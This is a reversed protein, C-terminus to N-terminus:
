TREISKPDRDTTRDYDHQGMRFVGTLIGSWLRSLREDIQRREDRLDRKSFLLEDHVQMAPELGMHDIIGRELVDAYLQSQEYWRDFDSM